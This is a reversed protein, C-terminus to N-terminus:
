AGGLLTDIDNVYSGFMSDIEAKTYADVNGGAEKPNWPIGIQCGDYGMEYCAEPSGEKYAIAELLRIGNERAYEFDCSASPTTSASSLSFGCLSCYGLGVARDIQTQDIAVGYILTYNILVTKDVARWQVLSEYTMCNIITSYTMNHVRLEDLLKPIVVDMYENRITIFAVKGYKRCVDLFDGVLCPHEGTKFSYGLCTAATVNRILTQNGSDYTTIYGSGDFTFGADHCCILEGDSTPRVDCKLANYGFNEAADTFHEVTNIPKRNIGSYCISLHEYPLISWGNHGPANIVQSYDVKVNGNLKSGYGNEYEIEENITLVPNKGISATNTCIRVYGGNAVGKNIGIRNHNGSEDTDITYINYGDPSLSSANVHQIKAKSSDYLVVRASGSPYIGFDDMILVDGNKVPIYGTVALAATTDSVTGDTNLLKGYELGVEDLVNTFKPNRTLDFVDDSNACGDLVATVAAQSMVATTSDGTAQVIASTPVANVDAAGLTVAGTKGNVSKVPVEPLESRLAYDGKPQAYDLVYIETAYGTLDVRQSGLIEWKGNAYIYETYLNGDAGDEAVLYVTTTSINSTPLASVVQISFKPIASVLANIEAKTLTESKLYYNALDSVAKTIFGSDNTLDSTKAPIKTSSPLAGVETATPMWTEPRAGVDAAGLSVAGTKGNVSKVPYPPPNDASYQKVNDVNGLGVENKTYSPKKSEKAWGPVTPDSEVFPHQAMYEAVVAAVSEPDAGGLSNLLEMIQAYVDDSPAEPSGDRCLISKKAPIIAPTTTHLNGAFVGVRIKNTNYIIPVSCENGQLVVDIYKRNDKSFRVTKVDFEDWEADFDFNVIFDSNGCIYQTEDMTVAIKDRVVIKITKM